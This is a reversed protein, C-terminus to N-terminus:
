NFQGHWQEVKRRYNFDDSDDPRVSIRNSRGLAYTRAEFAKLRVQIEKLEKEIMDVRDRLRVIEKKIAANEKELRDVRDLLRANEKKIAANEKELRDVRDLLRANEKKIAANEKELRDVRDLLRANEKMIAANQEFLKQFQGYFFKQQQELKSDFEKIIQQLELKFDMAYLEM